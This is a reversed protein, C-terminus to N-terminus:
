LGFVTKVWNQITYKNYIEPQLEQYSSDFFSREINSLDDKVVMINESNYFDYEKVTSNNTIVKKKLAMAEFFRFSLGTQNERM